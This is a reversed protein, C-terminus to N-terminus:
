FTGRCNCVSLAFFQPASVLSALRDEPDPARQALSRRVEVAHKLGSATNRWGLAATGRPDEAKTLAFLNRAANCRTVCEAGDGPAKVSGNRRYTLFHSPM